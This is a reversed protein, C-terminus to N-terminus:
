RRLQAVEKELASIREQQNKVIELLYIAIRDYRVLDPRGEGDKVVLDPLVEDVEEAMLGIDQHGTTKCNFSVPELQLLLSPDPKFKGINEMYRKSSTEKCIEGGTADGGLPQIICTSGWTVHEMERVAAKGNVDLTYAPYRKGIGVKGLKFNGWILVCSDDPCNAIILHDSSLEENYGAQNGIFVNRSGDTNKGADTGIYTNSDGYHTSYGANKGLFTNGYSDYNDYGAGTGVLTNDDGRSDRGAESGIFTNNSGTESYYGAFKGLFTNHNGTTKNRGAWTGIFTNSSGAHCAYGAQYGFFANGSGTSCSFGAWTGVFTNRSATTNSYGARNGLFTNFYAENNYGADDGLFTNGNQSTANGGAGVGVFTNELGPGVSVVAQGAIKYVSNINLDGNVDLKAVPATTGIGVSDTTTELRIVKGQDVWGGGIGGVSGSVLASDAVAARYAFAVSILRLRPMHETEVTVDLWYQDEEYFTLDLTTLSGLIVNFLGDTVPVDTHTEEWVANGAQIHNYIKFIIDYNGNLPNGSDDTIMGQYNILKPVQWTVDADRARASDPAQAQALCIDQGWILIVFVLVSLLTPFRVSRKM